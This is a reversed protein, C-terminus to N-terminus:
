ELETCRPVGHGHGLLRVERARRLAQAHRLRCERPLDPAQLALEADHTQTPCRALSLEGRGALLEELTCPPNRRLGVLREGLGGSRGPAFRAPERPSRHWPWGRAPTAPAARTGRARGSTSRFRPALAIPLVVGAPQAFPRHVGRERPQGDLLLPQARSKARRTERPSRPLPAPAIRRRAYTARDGSSHRRSQEGAHRRTLGRSAPGM